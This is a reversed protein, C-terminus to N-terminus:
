LAAFSNFHLRHPDRRVISNPPIFDAIQWCGCLSIGAVRGSSSIEHLPASHRPSYVPGM